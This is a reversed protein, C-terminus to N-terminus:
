EPRIPTWTGELWDLYEDDEDDTPLLADPRPAHDEVWRFAANIAAYGILTLSAAIWLIGIARTM